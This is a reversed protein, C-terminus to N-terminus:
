DTLDTATVVGNIVEIRYYKGDTTDKLIVGKWAQPSDDDNLGLYYTDDTTPRVDGTVELLNKVRIATTAGIDLYGDALSDIYENGDTQTFILKDSIKLAGSNTTYLM